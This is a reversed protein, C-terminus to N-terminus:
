GAFAHVGCGIHSHNVPESPARNASLQPPVVASLLKDRQAASIPGNKRDRCHTDVSEMANSLAWATSDGRAAQELDCRVRDVRYHIDGADHTQREPAFARAASQM